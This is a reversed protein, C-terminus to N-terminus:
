KNRQATDRAHDHRWDMKYTYYTAVENSNHLFMQTQHLTIPCTETITLSISEGEICAPLALKRTTIQGLLNDRVDYLNLDFDPMPQQIWNTRRHEWISNNPKSPCTLSLVPIGSEAQFAIQIDQTIPHEGMINQTQEQNMHDVCKLLMHPALWWERIFRITDLNTITIKAKTCIPLSLCTLLFINHDITNVLNEMDAPKQQSLLFQLQRAFEATLHNEQLTANWKGSLWDQCGDIQDPTFGVHSLLADVAFELSFTPGGAMKKLNKAMGLAFLLDTNFNLDVTDHNFNNSFQTELSSSQMKAEHVQRISQLFTAISDFRESQKKATARKLVADYGPLLHEHYSHVSPLPVQNHQMILAHPTKGTFPKQGTLMEFLVIGMQYIDTRADLNLGQAQEPAMYHFTGIQSRTQTGEVLHAIGFDALYANDQDDFLINAPKLDRHIVKYHHAHSLAECIRTFIAMVQRPPLPGWQLKDTLAKGPMYKMVYYPRNRDIGFDYIPVIAPHELKAILQAEQEFRKRIADNEFVTVSLVKLAVKRKMLPDHALYVDGMGGQGLKEKIEYRGFATSKM